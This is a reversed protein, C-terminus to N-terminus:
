LMNAAQAALYGDNGDRDPGDYRDKGCRTCQEFRSGDEASQVQWHHRGVLCRVPRRHRVRAPGAENSNALSRRLAPAHISVSWAYGFRERPPVEHLEAAFELRYRKRQAAPLILTALALLARTPVGISPNRGSANM